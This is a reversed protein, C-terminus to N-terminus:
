VPLGVDEALVTRLRERESASLAVLPRRPPGVPRGLLELAAKAYSVFLPQGAQLADRFLARYAHIGRGLELTAAVDGRRAASALEQLVAPMFNLGATMFSDIGLLLAFALVDESGVILLFHGSYRRVLDQFRALDRSTEELGLFGPTEALRDLLSFSLDGNSEVLFPVGLETPPGALFQFAAQETPPRPLDPLTLKLAAAGAAVAAEALLRHTRGSAGSLKAVVPARGNAAEVTVRVIRAHEAETLAWSEGVLDAAGLGRVGAALVFEVHERLADEDVDDAATFPTVLPVIPGTLAALQHFVGPSPVTARGRSRGPASWIEPSPSRSRRSIRPVSGLRRLIAWRQWSRPM